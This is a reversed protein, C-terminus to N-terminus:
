VNSAELEAEVSFGRVRKAEFLRWWALDLLKRRRAPASEDIAMQRFAAAANLHAVASIM